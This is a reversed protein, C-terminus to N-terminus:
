KLKTAAKEHIKLHTKLTGSQHFSSKCITCQFPRSGTHTREHAVKDSKQTFARDCFSCM